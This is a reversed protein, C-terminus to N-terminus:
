CELSKSFFFASSQWSGRYFSKVGAAIEVQEVQVSFATLHFYIVSLCIRIRCGEMRRIFCSTNWYAEAPNSTHLHDAFGPMFLPLQLCGMRVPSEQWDGAWIFHVEVQLKNQHNVSSEATHPLWVSSVCPDWAWLAKFFRGINESTDGYSEALHSKVVPTCPHQIM